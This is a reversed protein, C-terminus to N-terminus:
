HKQITQWIGIINGETDAVQAYYGMDGVSMKARTVKGGANEVKKIYADVSAVNIVIVPTKASNSDRKYMGGNIAGAETPMQKEDVDVTHIITYNM